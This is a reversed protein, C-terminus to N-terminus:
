SQNAVRRLAMGAALVFFHLTMVWMDALAAALVADLVAEGPDVMGPGVALDLPHVPGDLLGGDFAGGVVAMTLAFAVEGVEDRGVVEGAAKLRQLAECGELEDAFL